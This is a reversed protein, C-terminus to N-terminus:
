QQIEETLIRNVRKCFLTENKDYWDEPPRTIEFEKCRNRYQCALCIPHEDMVFSKYSSSNYTEKLKGEKYQGFSKRSSHAGTIEGNCLVTLRGPRFYPQSFIHPANMISAAMEGLPNDMFSIRNGLLKLVISMRVLELFEVPSLIMDNVDFHENEVKHILILSLENINPFYKFISDIFNPFEPLIKKTIVTFIDTKFGHKFLLETGKIAKAYSGKGRTEEHIKEPGNITVSFHILEKYKLIKKIFDNDFDVANTNIYIHEYGLNSIYELMKIFYPWITPEGGSLHIKRYGFNYGEKAIDKAMDFPMHTKENIDALAFCYNCGINNCHTTVEISLKENISNSNNM